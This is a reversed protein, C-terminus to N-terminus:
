EGLTESAWRETILDAVSGMSRESLALVVKAYSAELTVGTLPHVGMRRVEAASEYQDPSDLFPVAFLDIARKGCEAVLHKLSAYPYAEDVCTTGSHYLSIIVARVGDLAVRRYDAGPYSHLIACDRSLVSPFSDVPRIAKRARLEGSAVEDDRVFRGADFQGLESQWSSLFSHGYGTASMLREARHALRRGDPNRYTVVVGSVLSDKILTVADKFNSFGNTEEDELPLNSSVMVVPLELNRLLFGLFSAGFALTDTGHTVIVGSYNSSAVRGRIVEAIQRWYEPQANESLMTLPEVPDFSVASDKESGEYWRLLKWAYRGETRIEGGRAVSGITGGTFVVLISTASTM